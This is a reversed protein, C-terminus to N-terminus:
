LHLKQVMVLRNRLDIKHINGATQLQLVTRCNESTVLEHSLAIQVYM